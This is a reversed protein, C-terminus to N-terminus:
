SNGGVVRFSGEIPQRTAALGARNVSISALLDFTGKAGNITADAQSGSVLRPDLTPPELLRGSCNFVAMDVGPQGQWNPRQVKLAALYTLREPIPVPNGTVPDDVTALGSVEFVLVANGHTGYNSVPLPPIPM